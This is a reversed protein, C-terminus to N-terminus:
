CQYSRLSFHHFTGPISWFFILFFFFVYVLARRWIKAPQKVHLQSWEIDRPDPAPQTMFHFRNKAYNLQAATAASLMDNFVVFGVGLSHTLLSTLSLAFGGCQLGSVSAFLVLVVIVGICAGNIKQETSAQLQGVETMIDARRTTLWTIADTKEKWPPWMRLPGKGTRRLPRTGENALVWQAKELERELDNFEAFLKTLKPEHVACFTLHDRLFHAM